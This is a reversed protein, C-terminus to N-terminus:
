GTPAITQDNDEPDYEVWIGPFNITEHAYRIRELAASTLRAGARALALNEAYVTRALIMGERLGRVSLCRESRQMFLPILEKICTECMAKDLKDGALRLLADSGKNLAFLPDISAEQASLIADDNTAEDFLSLIQLLRAGRPASVPRKFEDRIPSHHHAVIEAIGELGELTRLQRALESAHLTSGGRVEIMKEGPYRPLLAHHLAAAVKCNRREPEPWGFRQTAFDMLAGVRGGSSEHTNASSIAMLLDTLRDLGEPSLRDSPPPPAVVVPEPAPRAVPAITPMRKLQDLMREKQALARRSQEVAQSLREVRHKSLNLHRDKRVNNDYRIAADEIEDVIEEFDFPRTLIKTVHLRNVAEVALSIEAEEDCLLVLATYQDIGHVAMLLDIGSQDSLDEDCVFVDVPNDNVFELAPASESFSCMEFRDGALQRALIDLEAPNSSVLVVRPQRPEVVEDEM